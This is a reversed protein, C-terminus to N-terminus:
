SKLNKLAWNIVRRSIELSREVDKKTYKVDLPYRTAIYHRNLEDCLDLMDNPMGLKEGLKTLDHIKWLRKYRQIFLAKLAKEAAQQCLFASVHYDRSKYSNKAGRSDISTQKLWSKVEEM